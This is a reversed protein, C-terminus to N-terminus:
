PPGPYWDRRLLYLLTPDPDLWSSYERAEVVVFGPLPLTAVIYTSNTAPGFLNTWWPGGPSQQTIGNAESYEYLHYGDWSAGADLMTLPIGYSIGRRASAWTEEQVVLCDRTAAISFAALLGTLVWLRVTNITIDRIAWLLLGIAIPVLPLLYRDVSIIWDAFHFSPPLIGVVQFGGIAILMGAASREHSPPSAVANTTFLGFVLASALCLWTIALLWAHSVLSPRGGILDTPGVGHAGVFQQIYPMVRGQDFFVTAGFLLMLGWVALLVTSIWSRAPRWSPLAGSMSLTLPLVCAGIYVAEIFTMRETLLRADSLGTSFIQDVFVGQQEPAKTLFQSWLLYGLATALPIGVVALASRLHRISFSWQRSTLFYFVVGIPVLAGQQRVLLACASVV